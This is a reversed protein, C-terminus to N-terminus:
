SLWPHHKQGDEDEGDSHASYNDIDNSRDDSIEAKKPGAVKNEKPKFNPVNTTLTWVM